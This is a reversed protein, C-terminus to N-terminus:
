LKRRLKELSNRSMQDFLRLAWGHNALWGMASGALRDFGRAPSPLGVAESFDVEQGGVRFSYPGTHEIAPSAGLFTQLELREVDSLWHPLDSTSKFNCILCLAKLLAKQESTLSCEVSRFYAVDPDLQVLPKLWLRHLTTRIANRVAPTNPNRLLVADRHNEWEAAVDPGVRLADCLGLSPVIPAGCALLFADKGMAERMVELGSRYALERPLDGRRTGPLAGAYLFDLKLYDFGWQRVRRMLQALWELAAPHTTDLAHLPEGWNFGASVPGGGEDRLFWDAHERFLRSSRVAVLPALWLGAKRGTHKIRDALDRMGAPFKANPEWDGISLQWGDDVQLVDFALDGLEDIVRRLLPEDIVSYLSYWSCWVRPPKRRPAMGLERGLLQAYRGFVTQEPGFAIFWDCATAAQGRVQNGALELHTDLGLAGVLLIASPGGLDAALVWSGHPRAHLAYKPDVQAPHLLRPRLPPLAAPGTWTALSWSQWGHQYIRIPPGPLTVVPDSGTLLYGGSTRRVRSAGSVQISGGEFRIEAM